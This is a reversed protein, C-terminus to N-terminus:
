YEHVVAHWFYNNETTKVMYVVYKGHILKLLCLKSCDLVNLNIAHTTKLTTNWRNQPKLWESNGIIVILIDFLIHRIKILLSDTVDTKNESWRRSSNNLPDAFFIQFIEFYYEHTQAPSCTFIRMWFFLDFSQITSVIDRWNRIKRKIDM